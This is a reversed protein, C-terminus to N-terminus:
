RAFDKKFFLQKSRKINVLALVIFIVLILLEIIYGVLGFRSMFGTENVAMKKRGAILLYGDLLIFQFIILVWSITRIMKFRKSKEDGPISNKALVLSMFLINFCAGFLFLYILLIKQGASKASTSSVYMISYVLANAITMPIGIKFLISCYLDHWLTKRSVYFLTNLRVKRKQLKYGLEQWLLLYLVPWAVLIVSKMVQIISEKM